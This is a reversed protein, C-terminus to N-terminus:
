QTHFAVLGSEIPMLEDSSWDLWSGAYNRVNTYGLLQSLVFWSLASRFGAACYCIIEQEKTVGKGMFLQELDAKSKFIGQEDLVREYAIHVANPIHGCRQGLIPPGQAFWEGTYEERTRVDLVKGSGHSVKLVRSKNALYTATELREIKYNTKERVTKEWTMPLNQVKWRQRGGDLLRVDHHGILKFFWFLFGAFPADEGTIVVSSNRFVGSNSLTQEICQKDLNISYDPNLLFGLMPLFISGSIHEIDYSEQSSRASEVLVLRDNWKLEQLLSHTDLLVKQNEM